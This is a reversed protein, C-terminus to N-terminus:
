YHGPGAPDLRAACVGLGWFLVGKLMAICHIPLVFFGLATDSRSFTQVVASPVTVVGILGYSAVSCAYYTLGCSAFAKWSADIRPRWLFSVGLFAVMSLLVHPWYWNRLSNRFQDHWLGREVGWYVLVNALILVVVHRVIRVSIESRSRENMM